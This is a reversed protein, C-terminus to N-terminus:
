LKTILSPSVYPYLDFRLSIKTTRKPIEEKSWKYALRTGFIIQIIDNALPPRAPNNIPNNTAGYGM